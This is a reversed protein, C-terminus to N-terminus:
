LDKIAEELGNKLDFSYVPESRHWFIQELGRRGAEANPYVTPRSVGFEESIETMAGYKRQLGTGPASIM